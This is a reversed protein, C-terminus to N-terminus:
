RAETLWEQGQPTYFIKTALQLTTVIGWEWEIYPTKAIRFYENNMGAPNKM